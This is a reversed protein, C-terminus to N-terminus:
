HKLISDAGRARTYTIEMMKEERGSKGTAYMEFELTNNDIFHTVSRWVMPGQVPDDYSATQNITRGDASATGEFVMIATGMTDMWTSIYKGTHNDYGTYGLGAFPAGMMDGTFQQQLFRGDLVMKQESRGASEMPSKGPEMWFRGMTNWSGAMGALMSHPAGPTAFKKYIDMMEQTEM